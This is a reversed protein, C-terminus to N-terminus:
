KSTGKPVPPITPPVATSTTAQDDVEHENLRAQLDEIRIDKLKLLQELRRIKAQLIQFGFM